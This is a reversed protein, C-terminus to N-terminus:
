PVERGMVIGQSIEIDGTQKFAHLTKNVLGKESLFTKSFPHICIILSISFDKKLKMNELKFMRRFSHFFSISKLGFMCVQWEAHSGFAM